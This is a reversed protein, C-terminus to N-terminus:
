YPADIVSVMLAPDDRLANFQGETLENAPISIPEATFHRGIRWRGATPGQVVVTFRNDPDIQEPKTFGITAAEVSMPVKDQAAVVTAVIANFDTAGVGSKADEIPPTLAETQTELTPTGADAALTSAGAADATAGAIGLAPSMTGSQAETATGTKAETATEIKAGAETAKPKPAM